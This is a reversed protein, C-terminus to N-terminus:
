KKPGPGKPLVRKSSRPRRVEFSQPEGLCDEYINFFWEGKYLGTNLMIGPLGSRNPPDIGIWFGTENMREIHVDCNAIWVEDFENDIRDLHMKHHQQKKTKDM